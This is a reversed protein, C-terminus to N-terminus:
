EVAEQTHAIIHITRATIEDDDQEGAIIIDDGEKIESLKAKTFKEEGETEGTVEPKGSIDVQWEKEGSKYTLKNGAIGTVRGRLTTKGSAGRPTTILIRVARLLGNENSPFGMAIVYDGIAMDEFSVEKTEKVMNAYSTTEALTIQKIEGENSRIQVASETIDTVTGLYAKPTDMVAQAKDKASEEIESTGTTEKSEEESKKTTLQTTYIVTVLKNVTEEKTLATVLIENIGGSLNIETLFEGKENPKIVMDSEEGTIVIYEAVSSIGEVTIPTIVAVQKETPKILSLELKEVGAVEGTKPEKTETITESERSRLASNAKWIGFAVVM